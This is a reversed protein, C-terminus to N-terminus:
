LLRRQLVHHYYYLLRRRLIRYRMIRQLNGNASLIVREISNFSGGIIVRTECGGMIDGECVYVILLSTRHLSPYHQNVNSLSFYEWNENGFNDQGFSVENKSSLQLTSPVFRKSLLVSYGPIIWIMNLGLIMVFWGFYTMFEIWQTTSRMHPFLHHM